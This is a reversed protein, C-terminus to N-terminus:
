PIDIALLAFQQSGPDPSAATDVNCVRVNIAGSQALASVQLEGTSAYAAQITGTPSAFVLDNAEAGPVALNASTCDNAAVSAFDQSVVAAAGLDSATLSADSVEAAGVAGPAIDPSPYNGTLDGGAFENAGLFASSNFGDLHNANPVIGFTSEKVDVGGLSNDAVKASGVSNPAIRSSTVSGAGLDPTKVEGNKISSSVVSNPPAVTVAYAGANLAIFIAVFGLVNRRIYEGVRNRM